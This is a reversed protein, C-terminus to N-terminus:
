LREGRRIMERRKKMLEMLDIDFEEAFAGKLGDILESVDELEMLVDKVRDRKQDPAMKSMRLAELATKAEDIEILVREKLAAPHLDIDPYTEFLNSIYGGTQENAISLAAKYCMRSLKPLTEKPMK